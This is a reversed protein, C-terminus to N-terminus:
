KEIYKKILGIAKDHRKHVTTRECNMVKAIIIPNMRDIYIDRLTERLDSDKIQNIANRIERKVTVAEDLAGETEKACDMLKEVLDSVAPQPRRPQFSPKSTLQEIQDNTEFLSRLLTKYDADYEHYRSLWAVTPDDKGIM